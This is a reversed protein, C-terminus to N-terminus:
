FTRYLQMFSILIYNNDYNKLIENANEATIAIKLPNVNVNPNIQALRKAASEVKPMGVSATDHMGQHLLNAFEVVDHDALGLEGVGARALDEAVSSGLGGAGIILVKSEKLRKQGDPGIIHRAYREQEDQQAFEM